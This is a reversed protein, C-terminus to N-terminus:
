WRRRKAAVALLPDLSTAWEGRQAEAIMAAADPAARLSASLAAASRAIRRATPLLEPYAAHHSLRSLDIELRALADFHGLLAAREPDVGAQARLFRELLAPAHDRSPATLAHGRTLAAIERVLAAGEGFQRAIAREWATEASFARRERALEAFTCLAVKTLEVERAGNIVLGWPKDFLEPALNDIPGFSLRQRGRRGIVEGTALPLWDNTIANNWIWPTLGTLREYEGLERESVFSSFIRPGTWASSLPGTSALGALYRRAGRSLTRAAGSYVAPVVHIAVEGFRDGLTQELQRVVLAHGRGQDFNAFIPLATPWTDDFLVVFDRCGVEAVASCREVLARLGDGELDAESRVRLNRRGFLREPAIGYVFRLGRSSAAVALEGLEALERVSLREWWRDRHAPDNKPAYMFSTFGLGGLLEIVGLRAAHSWPAGYFGEVLGIGLPRRTM